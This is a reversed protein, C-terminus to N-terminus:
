EHPTPTKKDGEKNYFEIPAQSVGFAAYIRSKKNNFYFIEELNISFYLQSFSDVLGGLPSIGVHYCM